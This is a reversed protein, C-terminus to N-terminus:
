NRNGIHELQQIEFNIEQNHIIKNKIKFPCDKKIPLPPFLVLQSPATEDHTPPPLAKLFPQILRGLLQTLLNNEM